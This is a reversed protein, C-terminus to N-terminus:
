ASPLDIWFRSGEPASPDAGCSGGMQQTARAVIALGIGTGEIHEVGSVREFIGFIKEHVGEPIGRGNDEVWLRRVPHPGATVPHTDSTPPNFPVGTSASPGAQVSERPESRVVVRLPAGPRAFKIANDFLNSICQQLLTRQAVVAGLPSAVTLVGHQLAPTISVLEEVLEDLDVPELQVEERAIKSFRLLDRTLADLRLSARQLRRILASADEPLEASYDDLLVQTFGTLSRIPARLDHAITYSFSELQQITEQLRATREAVKAELEAAHQSLSRRAEVLAAERQARDIATAVYQALTTLFAVKESEITDREYSGFALTGLLRPGFFLPFCAYSRLGIKRIIEAHPETSEQVRDIVMSARQRATASCPCTGELSTVALVKRVEPSVGGAAHLHMAQTAPDILYNFYAELQLPTAIKPFLESVAELPQESQLLHALAESLLRDYEQQRRLVRAQCERQTVDELLTITGVIAGGSLLPGVRATQLMRPVDFGKPPPLPLLYRHLATSLLAVEGALARTYPQDLRRKALDPIISLLPRGVVADEALGSQQVLWRNWTRIRLEADTTFIGYPAVQMWGVMAERRAALRSDRAEDTESAPIRLDSM